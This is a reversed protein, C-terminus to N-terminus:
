ASGSDICPCEIVFKTGSPCRADPAQPSDSMGKALHKDFQRERRAFTVETHAVELIRNLAIVGLM